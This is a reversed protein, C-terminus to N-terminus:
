GLCAISQYEIDVTLEGNANITQITNIKAEFNSASGQSIFDLHGSFTVTFPKADADVYTSRSTNLSSKYENGTDNGELKAHVAIRSNIHFGGNNDKRVDTDFKAEGSTVTMTEGTCPNDIEVGTQDVRRDWDDAVAGDTFTTIGLTLGGAIITGNRIFARRDTERLLETDPNNSPM